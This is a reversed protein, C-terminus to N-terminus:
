GDKNEKEALEVILERKCQHCNFRTIYKTIGAGVINVGCFPCTYESITNEVIKWIISVRKPKKM